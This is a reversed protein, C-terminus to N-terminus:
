VIRCALEEKNSRIEDQMSASRMGMMRSKPTKTSPERVPLRNKVKRRNRSQRTKFM